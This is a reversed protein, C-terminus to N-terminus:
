KKAAKKEKPPQIIQIISQPIPNDKDNALITKFMGLHKGINELAKNAGAPEFKFVGTSVLTRAEHDWEMIEEEQMSREYVKVLRRVVWETDIDIKEELKKREIEVLYQIYPEALMKSGQYRASIPSYGAKIASEKGNYTKVYEKVFIKVRDSANAAKRLIKTIEAQEKLKIVNKARDARREKEAQRKATDAALKKLEPSLQKKTM